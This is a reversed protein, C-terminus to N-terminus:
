VKVCLESTQHVLLPAVSYPVHKSGPIVGSREREDASRIDVVLLESDARVEAPTYRQIRSRAETVLTDVRSSIAAAGEGRLAPDARPPGRGLARADRPQLGRRPIGRDGRHLR